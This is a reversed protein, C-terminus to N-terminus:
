QTTLLVPWLELVQGSHALIMTIFLGTRSSGAMSPVDLASGTEEFIFFQSKNLNHLLGNFFSAKNSYFNTIVKLFVQDHILCNEDQFIQTM